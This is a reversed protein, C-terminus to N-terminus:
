NTYSYEKRSRLNYSHTPPNSNHFELLINAVELNRNRLNYTHTRINRLNVLITAAERIGKDTQRRRHDSEIHKFRSLREERRELTGFTQSGRAALEENVYASRRYYEQSNM